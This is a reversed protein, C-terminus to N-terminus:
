TPASWQSASFEHEERALTHTRQWVGSRARRIADVDAAGAFAARVFAADYYPAADAMSRTACPNM